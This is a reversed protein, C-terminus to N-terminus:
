YSPEQPQATDGLCPLGDLICAVIFCLLTTKGARKAQGTLETIAGRALFGRVIWDVREAADALDKASRFSARFATSGAIRLADLDRHLQDLDVSGPDNAYRLILTAAQRKRALANLQRLNATLAAESPRVGDRALEHLYIEGVADLQNRERLM